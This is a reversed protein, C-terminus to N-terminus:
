KGEGGNKRSPRGVAQPQYSELDESSIMYGQLNMLSAKLKGRYILKRVGGPSIGLQKAVEKVTLLAM